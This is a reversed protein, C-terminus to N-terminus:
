VKREPAFESESLSAGLGLLEYASVVAGVEAEASSQSGWFCRAAANAASDNSFM